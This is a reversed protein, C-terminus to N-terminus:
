DCGVPRRPKRLIAGQVARPLTRKPQGLVDRLALGTHSRACDAVTEPTGQAVVEGGGDGAEPGLDIVWDASKILELNHEIVVVSHGSDVLRQLVKM